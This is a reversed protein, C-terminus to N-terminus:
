EEIELEWGDYTGNLSIARQNLRLTINSLKDIVLKDSRSGTIMYPLASSETDDLAEIKFNQQILFRRYDDRDDDSAFSAFHKLQVKQDFNFDESQLVYIIKSNIMTQILFEDPYIFDEYLKWNEDKIIKYDVSLGDLMDLLQVASSSDQIYFYDKTTCQYILRGVDEVYMEVSLISDVSQSLREVVRMELKKMFGRDDCDLGTQNIELLYPLDLIPSRDKLDMHVMMRGPKGSWVADYQDWQASIELSCILIAFLVVVSKLSVM